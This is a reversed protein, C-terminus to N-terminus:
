FELAYHLLLLFCNGGSRVESFGMLNLLNLLLTCEPTAKIDLLDSATFSTDSKWTNAEIQLKFYCVCEDYLLFIITVM